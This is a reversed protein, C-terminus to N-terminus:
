QAEPAPPLPLAHTPTGIFDSSGLQWGVPRWRLLFWIKYNPEWMLWWNGDKHKDSIPEPTVRARLHRLEAILAPLANHASVIADAVATAPHASTNWVACVQAAHRVAAVQVRKSNISWKWPGPTAKALAAELEDLDIKQQGMHTESM